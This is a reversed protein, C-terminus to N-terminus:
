YFRSRVPCPSMCSPTAWDHQEQDNKWTVQDRMTQEMMMEVLQELESRQEGSGSHCRPDGAIQPYSMESHPFQSDIVEKPPIYDDFFTAPEEFVDYNYPRQPDMMATNSYLPNTTNPDSWSVPSGQFEITPQPHFTVDEGISQTSQRFGDEPSDMSVTAGSRPLDPTRPFNAFSLDMADPDHM